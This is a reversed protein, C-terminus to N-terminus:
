YDHRWAGKIRSEDLGRRESTEKKNAREVYGEFFKEADPLPDSVSFHHLTAANANAAIRLGILSMILDHCDLMEYIEKPKVKYIDSYIKDNLLTLSDGVKEVDDNTFYVPGYKMYITGADKSLMDRMAVGIIYHHPNELDVKLDFM